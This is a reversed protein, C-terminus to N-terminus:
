PSRNSRAGERREWARATRRAAHLTWYGESAASDAPFARAWAEVQALARAADVQYAGAEPMHEYMRWYAELTLSSPGPPAGAARARQRHTADGGPIVDLTFRGDVWGSDPRLGGTVFFETGPTFVPERSPNLETACNAGLAWRVLVAQGGSRTLAVRLRLSDPGGVRLVHVVQGYPLSPRFRDRLRGWKARWWWRELPRILWQDLERPARLKALAPHLGRAASVTEPTARVTLYTRAPHRFPRGASLSCAAARAPLAALAIGIALVYAALDCLPKRIM